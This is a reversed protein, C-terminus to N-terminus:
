SLVPLYATLDARTGGARVAGSAVADAFDLRGTALRLWTVADAEVVNPPTGRTHRPGPVAQVAVFPPVRVEVSRGPAQAALIEALLRVTSALAARPLPVPHDDPLSRTLDDCHVVLDLLRVRVFDLATLPGRPAAVVAGDALGAPAPVPERLHALLAAPPQDATLQKTMATIDDAAPRYARVYGSPPLAPPAGRTALGAALGAKSATLHGILTRLDWGPLVSPAAFDEDRLSSLTDVAASCQAEYAALEAALRSV